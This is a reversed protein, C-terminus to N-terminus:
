GSCAMNFISQDKNNKITQVHPLKNAQQLTSIFSPQLQRNFCVWLKSSMNEKCKEFWIMQNRLKKSMNM